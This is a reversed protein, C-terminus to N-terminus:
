RDTRITSPSNRIWSKARELDIESKAADPDERLYKFYFAQWSGQYRPTFGNNRASEIETEVNAFNEAIFQQRLKDASTRAKSFATDDVLGSDIRDPMWVFGSEDM